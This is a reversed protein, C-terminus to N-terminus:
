TPIFNNSLVSRMLFVAGMIHLINVKTLFCGGLVYELITGM